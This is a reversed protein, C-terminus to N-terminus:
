NNTARKSAIEDYIRSNIYMLTTYTDNDTDKLERLQDGNVLHLGDSLTFVLIAACNICVSFDGEKPMANGGVQTHVEFTYNCCPCKTPNM